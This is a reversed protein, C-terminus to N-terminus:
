PTGGQPMQKYIRALRLFTGLFRPFRAPGRQPPLTLANATSRSYNRGDLNWIPTKPCIGRQCPSGGGQKRYSCMRFSKLDKTKYSCVIFPNCPSKVSRCMRSPNSLDKSENCESLIRMRIPHAGCMICPKPASKSVFALRNTTPLLSRHPKM